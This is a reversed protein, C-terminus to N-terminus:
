REGGWIKGRKFYIFSCLCLLKLLLWCWLLVGTSWRLEWGSRSVFDTRRKERSEAVVCFVRGKIFYM